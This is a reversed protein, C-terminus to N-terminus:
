ILYINFFDNKGLLFAVGFLFCLVTMSVAIEVMLSQSAVYLAIAYLNPNFSPILSADSIFYKSYHYICLLVNECFSLTRKHIVLSKLKLDVVKYNALDLVYM